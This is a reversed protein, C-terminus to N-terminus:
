VPLPVFASAGTVFRSLETVPANGLYGSLAMSAPSAESEQLLFVFGAGCCWGDRILKGRAGVRSGVGRQRRHM